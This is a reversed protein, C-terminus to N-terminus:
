RNATALNVDSNDLDQCSREGAPRVIPQYVCWGEPASLSFLIFL